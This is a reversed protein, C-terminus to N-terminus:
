QAGFDRAGYPVTTKIEGVIRHGDRTCVDIDLGPAGQAKEAADLDALHFRRVLYAKALLTAMFSIDNSLNGQILKITSLFNYWRAPDGEDGLDHGQLFARLEAVRTAIAEAQARELQTLMM